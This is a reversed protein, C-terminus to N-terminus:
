IGKDVARHSPEPKPLEFDTIVGGLTIEMQYINKNRNYRHVIGTIRTMSDSPYIPTGGDDDGGEVGWFTPYGDNLESSIFWITDFDWDVNTFTSQTKMLVTIRGVANGGDGDTLTGSTEVDWFCDTETDGTGCFGGTCETITVAGTSYCHYSTGDVGAFGGIAGSEESGTVDGRAYCNSITGNSFGVFGGIYGASNTVDGLAYSHDVTGDSAIYGIFGGAYEGDGTVDGSVYCNDIDPTSSFGVLGGAFYADGTVNVDVVCNSITPYCGNSLWGILGGVANDGTITITGDVDVNDVILSDGVDLGILGGAYDCLTYDIDALELNKIVAGTDTKGIFGSYELDPRNIYLHAISHGKGDIQGTFWGGWSIVIYVQTFRVGVVGSLFRVGFGQLTLLNTPTWPEETIPHIPISIVQTEYDDSDVIFSTSSWNADAVRLIVECNENTIWEQIRKCRAVVSINVHKVYSPVTPLDFDFVVYSDPTPPEEDTQIYTSDDDPSSEDVKDWYEDEDPYKTWEGSTDLDDIPRKTASNSEYCAIPYFGAGSDWGITEFADISNALEYYASVDYQIEQLDDLTEIIYPDGQTGSGNM